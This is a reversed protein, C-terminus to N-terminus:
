RVSVSRCLDLLCNFESQLQPPGVASGREVLQRLTDELRGAATGLEPFGYGGSSGKLQHVLHTLRELERREWCSSIEGLRKPMENVFLELIDAMDPDDAYRSRLPEGRRSAPMKDEDM